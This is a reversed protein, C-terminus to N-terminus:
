KWDVACQRAKSNEPFRPLTGRGITTVIFSSALSPHTLYIEIPLAHESFHERMEDQVTLLHMEMLPNEIGTSSSSIYHTTTIGEAVARRVAEIMLVVCSTSDKGSSFRLHLSHRQRILELLTEIGQEQISKSHGIHSAKADQPTTSELLALLENTTDNSTPRSHQIYM